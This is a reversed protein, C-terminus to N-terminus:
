VRCLCMGALVIFIMAIGAEQLRMYLTNLSRPYIKMEMIGQIFLKEGNKQLMECNGDPSVVGTIGTSSVQVVYRGTECARLINHAFHQFPGFSNGYWSDNTIVVIFGPNSDILNASIEPFINEFCILVLFREGDIQFIGPKDGPSIEPIFGVMGTYIRKIIPVHRAPVYEGFPVLHKKDYRMVRGRNFFYASNYIVNNEKTLAGILIPFSFSKETLYEISKKDDNLIEPYSSEPWIVLHCDKKVSETMAKYKAFSEDPVQGFYGSNGQIGVIEMAKTESFNTLPINLYTLMCLFLVIAGITSIPIFDKRKIAECFAMNASILLGSLGASGLIGTLRVTPLCTWQSLSFPLWPFGSLLNQMLIELFYWLCGALVIRTKGSFSFVLWFFIAWYCSLYLVLFLYFFGAVSFLWNLLFGNFVFGALFGGAFNRFSNNEVLIYLLPVLGIWGLIWLRFPPFSFCPFLGCILVGLGILLRKKM